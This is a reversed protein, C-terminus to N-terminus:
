KGEQRTFGTDEDVALTAYRNGRSIKESESRVENKAAPARSYM